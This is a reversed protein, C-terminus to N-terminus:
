ADVNINIDRPAPLIESPEDPLGDLVACLPYYGTAAVAGQVGHDIGQDLSIYARLCRKADQWQTSRVIKRLTGADVCFIQHAGQLERTSSAGSLDVDPPHVVLIEDVRRTRNRGLFDGAVVGRSM